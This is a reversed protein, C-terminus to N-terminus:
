WLPVADDAWTLVVAGRRATITQLVAPGPCAPLYTGTHFAPRRGWPDLDNTRYPAHRHLAIRRREDNGHARALRHQGPLIRLLRHGPERARRRSGCVASSRLIASLVM